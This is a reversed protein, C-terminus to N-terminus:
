EDEVHLFFRLVHAKETDDFMLRSLSLMAVLQVVGVSSVSFEACVDLVISIEIVTVGLRLRRYRLDAASPGYGFQAFM